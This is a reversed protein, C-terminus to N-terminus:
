IGSAAAAEALSTYGRMATVRGDHVTYVVAGRMDTPVGSGRGRARMTLWVIVDDGADIFHDPFFEIAAWSDLWGGVTRDLADRGRGSSGLIAVWGGVDVEIDPDILALAAERDRDKWAAFVAKVIEVTEASM